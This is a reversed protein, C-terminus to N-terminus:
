RAAPPGRIVEAAAAIRAAEAPPRAVHWTRPRRVARGALRLGRGARGAAAVLHRRRDRGPRDAGADRQAAGLAAARAPQGPRLVALAAPLRRQRHRRRRVAGRAGAAGAGLPPDRLHGVAAAAGAAPQHDGARRRHAHQDLRARGVGHVGLDPAPGEAPRLGVSTHVMAQENRALVYPLGPKRGADLAATEHQLLAQGIGAVNGHGFIGFCGAFLKQREGDRESWQHALFEVTAQAVTLRITDSM